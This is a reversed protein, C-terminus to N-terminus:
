IRCCNRFSQPAIMNEWPVNQGKKWVTLMVCDLVSRSCFGGQGTINNSYLDLLFKYQRCTRIMRDSTHPSFFSGSRAETWLFISCQLGRQSGQPARSISWLSLPLNHCQSQYFLSFIFRNESILAVVEIESLGGLVTFLVLILSSNM